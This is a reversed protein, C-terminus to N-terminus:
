LHNLFLLMFEHYLINKDNIVEEELFREISPLGFFYFFVFLLLLQLAIRSCTIIQLGMKWVCSLYFQLSFCNLFCQLSFSCPMNYDSTGDELCPQPFVALFFPEPFGTWFFPKSFCNLFFDLSFSCHSIPDSPGDKLCLASTFSCIGLILRIAFM